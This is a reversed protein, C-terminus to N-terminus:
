EYVTLTEINEQIVRFSSKRLKESGETDAESVINRREWNSFFNLKLIKKSCISSNQNKHSEQKLAIDSNEMLEKTKEGMM